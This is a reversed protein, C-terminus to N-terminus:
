MKTLSPWLFCVLPVRQLGDGLAAVAGQDHLPCLGSVLPRHPPFIIVLSPSYDELNYLYSEGERAATARASNNSPRADENIFSVGGPAFKLYVPMPYVPITEPTTTADNNNNNSAVLISAATNATTTSMSDHQNTDSVADGRSSPPSSSSSLTM